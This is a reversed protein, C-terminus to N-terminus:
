LMVIPQETVGDVKRARLAPVTMRKGPVPSPTARSTGSDITFTSM